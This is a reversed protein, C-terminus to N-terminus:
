VMEVKLCTARLQDGPELGERLSGPGVYTAVHVDDELTLISSRGRRLIEQELCWVLSGQTVPDQDVSYSFFEHYTIDREVPVELLCVVPQVEDDRLAYRTPEEGLSVMSLSWTKVEYDRNELVIFMPEGQALCSVVDALSHPIRNLGLKVLSSPDGGFRMVNTAADYADGLDLGQSSLIMAQETAWQAVAPSKWDRDYHRRPGGPPYEICGLFEASFSNEPSSQTAKFGGVAPVGGTYYGATIAARGAEPVASDIFRVNGKLVEFKRAAAYKRPHDLLAVRRLWDETCEEHWFRSHVLRRNSEEEQVYIDCDVMPCCFGVAEALSVKAVNGWSIHVSLMLDLDDESMELVVRTSILQSSGSAASLLIPRMSFGNRFSLTRDDSIGCDFPRSSVDVRDAIMFASFFGIGYRGSRKGSRALLGPREIKALESGFYSSGFDILPGTLVAESMGIGDDQVELVVRDALRRLVLTVEGSYNRESPIERRRRVADVANQILERLPVLYDSGYLQEGGFLKVVNEVNSVRVEASVPRWDRVQVHRALRDPSEADRVRTIKLPEQRLDRLLAYSDILEKNAVRVADHGIWWAEAEDPTFERSSTFVIAQADEPDVVPALLRNQARWHSESVGKLQLMGYLFDPVRSQDLQSADACRLLCAIRVPRITWSEPYGALVGIIPPLKRPLDQIDWHHSAAILGIIRGLHNRLRDDQLLRVRGLPTAVELDALSEARRAHIARLTNFLAVARLEQPAHAFDEPTDWTEDAKRFQGAMEDQWEPTAEIEAIGGPFAAVTNAADHLLIAGGLVFAEMPTLPAADGLIQDARFWLASFHREDHLTLSPVDIAIQRALEVGNSWFSEYAARLRDRQASFPDNERNALSIRWINTEQYSM